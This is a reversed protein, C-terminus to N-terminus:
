KDPTSGESTASASALYWVSGQRPGSVKEGNAHHPGNDYAYVYVPWGNYTVQWKGGRAVWGVKGKVGHAVTIRSGKPVLLPPWFATCGSSPTCGSPKGKYDLVYLSDGKSNGLVSGYGRVTSATLVPNAAQAAGATGFPVAFGAVAVGCMSGVAAAARWRAGGTAAVTGVEGPGCLRRVKMWDAIHEDDV